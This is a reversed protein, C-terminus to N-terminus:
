DEDERCCEALPLSMETSSRTHESCCREFLERMFAAICACPCCVPCCCVVTGTSCCKDTNDIHLTVCRQSAIVQFDTKGNYPNGAVEWTCPCMLSFLECVGKVPSFYSLFLSAIFITFTTKQM